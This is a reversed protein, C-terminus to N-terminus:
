ALTQSVVETPAVLVVLTVPVALEGVEELGGAGAAGAQLVLPLCCCLRCSLDLSYLPTLRLRFYRSYM